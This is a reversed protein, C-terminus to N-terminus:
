HTVAMNEKAGWVEIDKLTLDKVGSPPSSSCGRMAGRGHSVQAGM